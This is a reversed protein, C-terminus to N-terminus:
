QEGYKKVEGQQQAAAYPDYNLINALGQHFDDVAKAASKAKEYDPVTGNELAVIRSDLKQMLSELEAKQKKFRAGILEGAKEWTEINAANRERSRKKELLTIVICGVAAALALSSLIIAVM